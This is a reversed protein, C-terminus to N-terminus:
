RIMNVQLAKHGKYNWSILAIGLSCIVILPITKKIYYSDGFIPYM